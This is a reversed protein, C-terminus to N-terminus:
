MEILQPWIESSIFRLQWSGVLPNNPSASLTTLLQSLSCFGSRFTDLLSIHATYPHAGTLVADMLEFWRSVCEYTVNILTQSHGVQFHINNWKTEILNPRWIFNSSHVSAAVSGDGAYSKHSRTHTHFWLAVKEVRVLWRWQWEMLHFRFRYFTQVILCFSEGQRVSGGVVMAALEVCTHLTYVGIHTEARFIM